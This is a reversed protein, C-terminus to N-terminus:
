RAVGQQKISVCEAIHRPDDLAIIETSSTSVTDPEVHDVAVEGTSNKLVDNLVVTPIPDPDQWRSRSRTNHLSQLVQIRDHDRGRIM